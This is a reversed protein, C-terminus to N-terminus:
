KQHNNFNLICGAFTAAAVFAKLLMASFLKFTKSAPSLWM